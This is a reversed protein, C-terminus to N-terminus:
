KSHIASAIKDATEKGCLAEVLALGFPIAAGMAKGTIINGDIVAPADTVTAGVLKDEYGPFCVARKGNLYGRKGLIYPAACIAGIVAGKKHAAELASAVYESAYLNDAGPLGGPFIVGDIVESPSLETEHMDAVLTISHSGTVSLEGKQTGVAVTKVEVGARRLLDLPAIAETEEFGNALFLYVM